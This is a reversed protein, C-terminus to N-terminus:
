SPPESLTFDATMTTLTQLHRQVTALDGTSQASLAVPAALAATLAFAHRIM